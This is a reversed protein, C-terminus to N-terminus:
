HNRGLDKTRMLALADREMVNPIDKRDEYPIVVDVGVLEEKGDNQLFDYTKEVGAKGMVYVHIVLM